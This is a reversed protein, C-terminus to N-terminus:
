QAGIATLMELVDDYFGAPDPLVGGIASFAIRETYYFAPSGTSNTALLFFNRSVRASSGVSGTGVQSGNKWIEGANSATRMGGGLGQLTAATGVFEGGNGNLGVEISGGERPFFTSDNSSGPEYVGQSTQGSKNGTGSNMYCWQSCSNQLWYTSDTLMNYNSDLYMNSGNGTYGRSATWTPSNNETIVAADPNVMSYVAQDQSETAFLWMRDLVQFNGKDKCNVIFTNLIDKFASSFPTPVADFYAQADPDYASIDHTNFKSCLMPATIGSSKRVTEVCIFINTNPFQNVPDWTLGTAAEWAATIDQPDSPATKFITVFRRISNITPKQRLTPLSTWVILNMDDWDIDGTISLDIATSSGLIDFSPSDTPLDYDPPSTLISLDMLQRMYNVSLFWNAGTLTKVQGFKNTKDHAAAFTNWLDKLDSGILSYRYLLNQHSAHAAQQRVTSSKSVMPRSRVITGAANRQFTNAGVSGALEGLSYIIRAM